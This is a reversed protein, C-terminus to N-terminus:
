GPNLRLRKQILSGILSPAILMQANDQTLLYTRQSGNTTLKNVKWTARSKEGRRIGYENNDDRYKPEEFEGCFSFYVDVELSVYDRCCDIVDDGKWNECVARLWRGGCM